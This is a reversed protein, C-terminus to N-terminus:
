SAVARDRRCSRHADPVVNGILNVTTVFGAVLLTMCLVGLENTSLRDGAEEARVLHTLVDDGPALRRREILEDLFATLELTATEARTKCASM